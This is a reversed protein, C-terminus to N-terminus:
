NAENSEEHDEAHEKNATSAAPPPLYFNEINGKRNFFFPSKLIEPLEYLKPSM